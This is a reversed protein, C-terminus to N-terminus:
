FFITFIFFGDEYSRSEELGLKELYKKVLHLGMGTSHRGEQLHDNLRYFPEFLTPSLLQPHYATENAISLSDQKVKILVKQGKETHRIANSILNDVIVQLHFPSSQIEVDDAIDQEISLEKDSIMHQYNELSESILDSLKISIKQLPMSAESALLMTQIKEKSIYVLDMAEKLYRDRDQYPGIQYLMNELLISLSTLPTKLEHSAAKFFAEKEEELKEMTEIYALLAHYMKNINEGLLAMEDESDSEFLAQPDREAMSETISLLELIPKTSHRSYFYSALLSILVSIGLSYPLLTLILETIEHVPQISMMMELGQKRGRNDVYDAQALIVGQQNLIGPTQVFLENQLEELEKRDINEDLEIEFPMLGFFNVKQHNMELRINTNSLYAFSEVIAFVDEEKQYSIEQSLREIHEDLSQHKTKLYLKPLFNYFAFHLMLIVSMMVTFTYLFNKQFLKLKKM